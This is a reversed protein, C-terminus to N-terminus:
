YLTYFFSLSALFFFFLSPTALSSRTKKQKWDFSTFWSFPAISPASVYARIKREIEKGKKEQLQDNDELYVPATISTTTTTLSAWRWGGKKRWKKQRQIPLSSHDSVSSTRRRNWDVKPLWHSPQRHEVISHLYLPDTCHISSTLAIVFCHTSVTCGDVDDMRRECQM